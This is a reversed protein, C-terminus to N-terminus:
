GLSFSSFLCFPLFLSPFTIVFQTKTTPAYNEVRQYKDYTHVKLVSILEIKSIVDAQASDLYEKAILQVRKRAAIEQAINKYYVPSSLWQKFM